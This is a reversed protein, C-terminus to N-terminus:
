CWGPSSFSPGGAALRADVPDPRHTDALSFFLFSKSRTIGERTIADASGAPSGTMAAEDQAAPHTDAVQRSAPSALTVVLTLLLVALLSGYFTFFPKDQSARAYFDHGFILCRSRDEQTYAIFAVDGGSAGGDVFMQGNPYADQEQRYISIADGAVSGPSEVSFYLMKGATGALPPFTIVTPGSNSITAAPLELRM